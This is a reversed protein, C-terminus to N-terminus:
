ICPLNMHTYRVARAFGKLLQPPRVVSALFVCTGLNRTFEGQSISTNTAMSQIQAKLNSSLKITHGITLPIAEIKIPRNNAWKESRHDVWLRSKLEVTM